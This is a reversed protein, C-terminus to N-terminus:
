HFHEESGKGDRLQSSSSVKSVDTFAHKEKEKENISRANEVDRVPAPELTVLRLGWSKIFYRYSGKWVEIRGPAKGKKVRNQLVLVLAMYGVGLVFM